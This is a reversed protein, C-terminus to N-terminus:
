RVMHNRLLMGHILKLLCEPKSGLLLLKQHHPLFSLIRNRLAIEDGFPVKAICTNPIWALGPIDFVVVPLGAAMAELISIGFTEFRSPHVFVKAESLLRRKEKESVYGVFEVNKEIKLECV